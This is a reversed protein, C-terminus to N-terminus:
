AQLPDGAVSLYGVSDFYYCNVVSCCESLSAAGTAQHGELDLGRTVTAAQNLM